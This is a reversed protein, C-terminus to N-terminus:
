PRATMPNSRASVSPTYRRPRHGHFQIPDNEVLDAHGQHM